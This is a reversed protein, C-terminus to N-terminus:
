ISIRVSQTTDECQWVAHDSAYGTRPLLEAAALVIGYFIIFLSVIHALSARYKWAASAGWAGSLIITVVAGLYGALPMGCTRPYPWGAGITVGVALGLLVRAWVGILQSQSASDSRALSVPTTSQGAPRSRAASVHPEGPLGPLQALLRDVVGAMPDPKPGPLPKPMGSWENLPPVALCEVLGPM